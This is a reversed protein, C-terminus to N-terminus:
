GFYAIAIIIIFIIITILFRAIKDVMIEKMRELIKM